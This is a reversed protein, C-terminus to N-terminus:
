QQVGRKNRLLNAIRNNRSSFVSVIYASLSPLFGIFQCMVLGHILGKYRDGWVLSSPELGVSGSNVWQQYQAVDFALAAYVLLTLLYISAQYFGLLSRCGCLFIAGITTVIARTWYLNNGEISMIHPLLGTILSIAWLILCESRIPKYFSALAFLASCTLLYM